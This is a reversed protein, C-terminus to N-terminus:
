KNSGSIRKTRTDGNKNGNKCCSECRSRQCLRRLRRCRGSQIRQNNKKAASGARLAKFAVGINVFINKLTFKRQFGSVEVSKFDYGAKPVLDAEMKEKTGIFLIEADPFRRKIEGASALAPNIHGGTGGAAFIIKM